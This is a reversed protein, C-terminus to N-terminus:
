PPPLRIENSFLFPLSSFSLLLAFLLFIFVFFGGNGFLFSFSFFFGGLSFDGGISYDIFVYFDYVFGGGKGERRRLSGGFVWGWDGMVGM